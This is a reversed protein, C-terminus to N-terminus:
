RSCSMTVWAYREYNQWAHLFEQRVQEALVQAQQDDVEDLATQALVGNAGVFFWLIFPCLLSEARRVANAHSRHM